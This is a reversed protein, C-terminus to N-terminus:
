INNLEKEIMKWANSVSIPLTLIKEIKSNNEFLNILESNKLNLKNQIKKIILINGPAIFGLEPDSIPFEKLVEDSAGVGVNRVGNIDLYVVEFYFILGEKLRNESILIDAMKAKTNRYLGWDQNKINQLLDENYLMWLIDNDSKNKNKNKANKFREFEGDYTCISGIGISRDEDLQEAEKKTALIKANQLNTRVYIYEGCHICKTKSGPIKLLKKFCYPCEDKRQDQQNLNSM